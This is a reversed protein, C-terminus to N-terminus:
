SCEPMWSFQRTTPNAPLGTKRDVFADDRVTVSVTGGAFSFEEHKEACRESYLIVTGPVDGPINLTFGKALPGVNWYGSTGDSDEVFALVYPVPSQNEVFIETRAEVPGCAIVAAILTMM